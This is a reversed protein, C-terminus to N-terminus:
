KERNDKKDNRKIGKLFNIIKMSQMKENKNKIIFEKAKKGKAIRENKPLKLVFEIAECIGQESEDKILYVYNEYEKPMGPLKTTLMPTGSAMYEINKSPFSYKTFQEKTPRPNILITSQMQAKVVEENSVMGKYKINYTNKCEEEVYEKEDGDGYIWLEVDKRQIKKFGEILLKIGFKESLKGSYLIIKKENNEKYNDKEKMRYDSCGEIVIYPKKELNIAENMQETLLIFGDLKSYKNKRRIIRSLRSNRGSTEQVDCMYEYIDAVIGVIVNKLFKNALLVFPIVSVYSADIIVYTEAQKGYKLYANMINFATTIQKLFPINIFGVQHYTIKNEDEICKRWFFKSSIKRSIPLGIISTVQVNNEEFGKILLNHFKVGSIEMKKITNSNIKDVNNPNCMSSIYIIKM